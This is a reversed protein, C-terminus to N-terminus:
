LAYCHSGASPHYNLSAEQPFDYKFHLLYSKALYAPFHLPPQDHLLYDQFLSSIFLAKCSLSFMAYQCPCFFVMNNSPLDLVAEQSMKTPKTQIKFSSVMSHNLPPIFPDQKYWLLVIRYKKHLFFHISPLCSQLHLFLNIFEILLRTLLSPGCLYVALIFVFHYILSLNLYHFQYPNKILPMHNSLSLIVDPNRHTTVHILIRVFFTRLPFPSSLIFKSIAGNSGLPLTWCHIHHLFIIYLAM